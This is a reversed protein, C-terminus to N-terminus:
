GNDYLKVDEKEDTEPGKVIMIVNQLSGYRVSTGTVIVTGGRFVETASLSLTIFGEGIASGEQTSSTTSTTTASQKVQPQKSTSKKEETKQPTLLSDIAQDTKQTAKSRVKWEAQNKVDNAVRKLIQSHCFNGICFSLFILYIIKM